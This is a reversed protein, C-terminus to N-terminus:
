RPPERELFACLTLEARVTEEDFRILEAREVFFYERRSLVDQLFSNVGRPTAQLSCEIVARDPDTQKESSELSCSLRNKLACQELASRLEEPTKAFAFPLLRFKEQEAKLEKEREQLISIRAQARETVIRDERLSTKLTETKERWLDEGRALMFAALPLSLMLAIKLLEQVIAKQRM